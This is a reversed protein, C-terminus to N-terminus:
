GCGAVGQGAHLPSALASSKLGAGMEEKDSSLDGATVNASSLSLLKIEDIM